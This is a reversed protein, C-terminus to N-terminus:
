AARDAKSGFVAYFVFLYIYCSMDLREEPKRLKRWQSHTDMVIFSFLAAITSTLNWTSIYDQSLFM